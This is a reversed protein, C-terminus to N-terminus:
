SRGRLEYGIKLLFTYVVASAGHAQGTVTYGWWTGWSGQPTTASGSADATIDSFERMPLKSRMIYNKHQSASNMLIAGPLRAVQTYSAPTTAEVATPNFAVVDIGPILTTSAGYQYGQFQIETHTVRVEDFLAQLPTVEQVNAISLGIGITLIGSANATLTSARTGYFKYVRNATFLGRLVKLVMPDYVFTTGTPSKVEKQNNMLSVVADEVMDVHFPYFPKAIAVLAGKRPRRKSPPASQPVIHAAM